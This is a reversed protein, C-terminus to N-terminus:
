VCSGIRRRVPLGGTCVFLLWWPLGGVRGEPVDALTQPDKSTFISRYDWGNLTCIPFFLHCPPDPLCPFRHKAPM